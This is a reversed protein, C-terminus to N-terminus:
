IFNSCNRSSWITNGYKPFKGLMVLILRRLRGSTNKLFPIGFIHLLNVPSCGHRLRIEIAVKTSDCKPMPTRRYIQQMNESCRKRPVGRHAQKQVPEFIIEFIFIMNRFNKLGIKNILKFRFSCLNKSRLFRCFYSPEPKLVGPHTQWFM